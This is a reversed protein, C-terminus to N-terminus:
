GGKERLRQAQNIALFRSSREERAQKTLKGRAGCDPCKAQGPHRMGIFTHVPFVKKCKPCEFKM